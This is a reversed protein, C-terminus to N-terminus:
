VSREPNKKFKLLPLTEDSSKKANVSIDVTSM